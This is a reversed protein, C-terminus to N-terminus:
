SSESAELRALLERAYALGEESLSPFWSLLEGDVRLAKTGEALDAGDRPLEFRYPETSFLHVDVDLATREEDTLRPYRGRERPLANRLGATELLSSIYTDRGAGMWPDKWVYYVFRPGPDRRRREPETQSISDRLRDALRQGERKKGTIVGLEEWLVPVDEIDRPDTLWVPFREALGAIHVETNEERNSLIVDPKLAAIREVDPNKTGGVREISEVRGRPRVCWDTRAILASEAGLLFVADTLSPVLSVIRTVSEPLESGM